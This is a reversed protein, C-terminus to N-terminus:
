SCTLEVSRVKFAGYLKSVARTAAADRPNLRSDADRIAVAEVGPEGAPLFRLLQLQRGRCRASTLRVEAGADVLAGVTEPPVDGACYVVCTWAPFLEKAIMANQVM